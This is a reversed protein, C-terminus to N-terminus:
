WGRGGGGGGGGGSSGRGGLGSGSRRSSSSSSSSSRSSRAAEPPSYGAVSTQVKKSLNRAFLVAFRDTNLPDDGPKPLSRKWEPEYRAKELIASFTDAWTEVTDLALAYPLLSEFLRPTEEPPNLIALRHRDASMFMALGQVKALLLAGELSRVPMIRSFFLVLATTLLYGGSLVADTHFMNWLLRAGGLALLLLIGFGMWFYLNSKIKGRVLDIIARATFWLLVTSVILMLPVLIPDLVDGPAMLPSGLFCTAFIMPIFLLLGALTSGLNHSYYKGARNEYSDKLYREALYFTRGATSDVPSGQPDRNAFLIGALKHLAPTLELEELARGTRRIRTTGDKEEFYLAGKIALQLIDAALVEPSYGMDLFYRAFGPEMGDPPTFLPIVLGPDPDRGKIKWALYYYLLFLGAFAAMVGLRYKVLITELRELFGPPPPTVLGKPWGVAVTLGEGPALPRTTRFTGDADRAFDQGRDGVRGTYAASATVSADQPLVVRYAAQDIPFDWDNGTVNWYLEDHDDLFALWGVTKYTLEYQYQGPELLVDPSGLRIELNKGVRDVSAEVPRGNITATLLDFDTRVSQGTSDNYDTPFVRIIGRKIKLGNAAVLIREKVTVTADAQVTATVDFRLLREEQGWAPAALVVLVLFLASFLKSQFM